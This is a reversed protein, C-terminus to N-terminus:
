ARRRDRALLLGERGTHVVVNGGAGTVVGLGGGLDALKLDAARSSQAPAFRAPLAPAFRAPLAGSALAVGAGGLQRLFQRRLRNM